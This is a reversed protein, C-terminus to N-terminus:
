QQEGQAARREAFEANFKEAMAMFAAKNKEMQERRKDEESPEKAPTTSFIPKTPYQHDIGKSIERFAPSATLLAEFTYVGARWEALYRNDRKIREAERYAIALKPNGHWFEESSM